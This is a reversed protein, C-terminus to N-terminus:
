APKILRYADVIAAAQEYPANQSERDLTFENRYEAQYNAGPNPKQKKGYPSGEGDHKILNRVTASNARLEM